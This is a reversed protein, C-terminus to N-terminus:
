VVQGSRYVPALEDLGDPRFSGLKQEESGYFVYRVDFDRLTRLKLAFDGDDAYFEKVLDRKHFFDVTQAWHALFARQGSLAPIYQGIALSSLVVSSPGPRNALWHIAATEDRELYYPTEHRNLEVFRQGLLYLNTPLVAAVLVVTIWGKLQPSPVARHQAKKSLWRLIYRYIGQTALICIPIQWGNLLHVQFDVPLYIVLFTVLFWGKLFLDSNSTRRFSSFGDKVVTFLALLFPIGLLIPLHLLGPTFVGANSFQGLVQKWIPDLRTLLVSYLAPWFSLIGVVLGSKVLYVPIRRDRLWRLGAYALLVSYVSVLDYAHQWGLFFAVLGAWVAYRLQNKAEGRLILDYVFVYLAAAVFHPYGLIQLFTNGESITFDLPSALDTLHFLYKAAILVWGFGSTIAILLFALRRASREQLFWTCLRYALALFLVTALVRILQLIVPYGLGLLSDLRGFAWWLLNFFVPANPEPTLKNSSLNATSFERMWSFYQVHDPVDLMIGMYQKDAPATLYAFLIPLSTIVLILLTVLAVFGWETLEVHATKEETKSQPRSVEM